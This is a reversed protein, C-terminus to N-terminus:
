NQNSNKYHNDRSRSSINIFRFFVALFTNATRCSTGTSSASGLFFSRGAAAATSRMLFSTRYFHSKRSSSGCKISQQKSLKKAFLDTKKCSIQVASLISSIIMPFRFLPQEMWYACPETESLCLSHSYFPLNKVKTESLRINYIQSLTYAYSPM